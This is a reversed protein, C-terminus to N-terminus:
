ARLGYGIPSGLVGVKESIEVAEPPRPAEKEHLRELSEQSISLGPM